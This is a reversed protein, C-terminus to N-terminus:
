AERHLKFFYPREMGKFDMWGLLKDPDLQAFVDNIPRADYCMAAHHRGRFLITRLRAKPKRTWLLPALLPFLVPAVVDRLPLNTSLRIPLLGPNISVRGWLPMQHVLPHVDESGNFVKGYWYSSELMGDMPHSTDIGEGRWRGIMQAETAPELSDFLATAEETTMKDNQQAM